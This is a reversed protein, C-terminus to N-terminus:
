EDRYMMVFKIPIHLWWSKFNVLLTFADNMSLFDAKEQNAADIYKNLNEVFFGHSYPCM